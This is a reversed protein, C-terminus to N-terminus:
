IGREHGTPDLSRTTQIAKETVLYRGHRDVKLASRTYNEPTNNIAVAELALMRVSREDLGALVEDLELLQDHAAGDNAPSENSVLAERLLALDATNLICHAIKDPLEYSPLTM